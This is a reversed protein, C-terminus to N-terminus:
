FRQFQIQAPQRSPSIVLHYTLAAISSLMVLTLLVTAVREGFSRDEEEM